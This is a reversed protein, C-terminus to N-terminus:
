NSGKKPLQWKSQDAFVVESMVVELYHEGSILGDRSLSKFMEDFGPLGSAIVKRAGPMLPDVKIEKTEGEKGYSKSNEDQFLYWRLRVAVVEKGSLNEILVRTIGIGDEVRSENAVVKVPGDGLGLRSEVSYSVSFGATPRVSGTPVAVPIAVTKREVVERKNEGQAFCTSNLAGTTFMVVFLGLVIKTKM